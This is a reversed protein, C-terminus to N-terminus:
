LFSEICVKYIENLSSNKQRNLTITSFIIEGHFPMMERV